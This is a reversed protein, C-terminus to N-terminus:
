YGLINEEAVMVETPRVSLARRREAVAVGRWARSAANTLEGRGKWGVYGSIGKRSRRMHSLRCEEPCTRSHEKM